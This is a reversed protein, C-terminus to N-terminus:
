VIHKTYEQRCIPCTVSTSSLQFAEFSAICKAHFAHSCSLLVVPRTMSQNEMPHMCISCETEEREAHIHAIGEWDIGSPSSATTLQEAETPPNLVSRAFAVNQDIQAFLQDVGDRESEMDDILRDSIRGLRDAYYSRLNEARKPLVREWLHWFNKRVFYGRWWKQIMIACKHQYEVRGDAILRKEYDEKRCIPCSKQQSYIEFSRLCTRHFTHTCSLLVMDEMGFDERCISCGDSVDGRVRSKEAIDFWEHQSLPKAPGEVLGMRQALSLKGSENVDESELPLLKENKSFEKAKQAQKKAKQQAAAANITPHASLNLSRAFHDQLAVAALLTTNSSATSGGGRSTRNLRSGRM